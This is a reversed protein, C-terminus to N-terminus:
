ENGEAKEAEALLVRLIVLEARRCELESELVSIDASTFAILTKLDAIKENM